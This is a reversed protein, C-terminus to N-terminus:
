LARIRPQHNKGLALDTIEWRLAEHRDPSKEKKHYPEFFLSSSFIM